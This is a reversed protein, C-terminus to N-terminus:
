KKKSKKASDDDEAQGSTEGSFVPQGIVREGQAPGPEKPQPGWGDPCEDPTQAIQGPGGDPPYVWRPYEVEEKAM